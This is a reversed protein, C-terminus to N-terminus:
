RTVYDNIEYDYKAKNATIADRYVNDRSESKFRIAVNTIVVDIAGESNRIINYFPVALYTTDLGDKQTLNTVFDIQYVLYVCNYSDFYTKRLGDKLSLFYSHVLNLASVEVSQFSMNWAFKNPYLILSAEYRNAINSEIVDRAQKEMRSFTPQDILSFSNIYEDVGSVTFKKETEKIAYGSKAAIDVNINATVTITDGNSLDFGNDIRYNITKLFADHSANRLIAKAEPAVGDYEIHIDAFLDIETLKDLGMVQLAKKSATFKLKYKKMVSDDWSVKLTVTDGNSLSETKDLKYSISGELEAIKAVSSLSNKEKVSLIANEFAGWDVSVSASADGDYGRISIVAFGSLDVSKSGCGSFIFLFCCISIFILVRQKYM